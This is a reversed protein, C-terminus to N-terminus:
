LKQLFNTQSFIYLFPPGQPLTKSQLMQEKQLTYEWARWITSTTAVRVIQGGKRDRLSM